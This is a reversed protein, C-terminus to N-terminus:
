ARPPHRPPAQDRELLAWLAGALPAARLVCSPWPPHHVALPALAALLVCAATDLGVQGDAAPLLMADAVHHHADGRQHALQHTLRSALEQALPDAAANGLRHAVGGGAAPHTFVPLVQAQVSAPAHRHAPGRVLTQLAAHAQVLLVVALWCALVRALAAAASDRRRLAALM